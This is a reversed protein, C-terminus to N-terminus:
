APPVESVEDSESGTHMSWLVSAAGITVSALDLLVDTVRPERAPVFSQRLEDCAAFTGGILAVVMLLHRNGWSAPAERPMAFALLGGLIAYEVMHGLKSV